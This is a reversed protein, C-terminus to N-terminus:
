IVAQDVFGPAGDLVDGTEQQWTTLAQAARPAVRLQVVITVPAAVPSVPTTM